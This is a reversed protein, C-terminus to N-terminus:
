WHREDDAEWVAMMVDLFCDHGSFMWRRGRAKVEILPESNGRYAVVITLNRRWDRSPLFPRSSRRRRVTGQGAPGDTVMAVQWVAKTSPVSTRDQKNTAM